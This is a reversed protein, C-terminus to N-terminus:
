VGDLLTYHAHEPVGNQGHINHVSFHHITGRSKTHQLFKNSTYERGKDSQFTKISANFQTKLWAEYNRYDDLVESKHCMLNVAIWCKADDVFIVYYEAHRVTQTTAPGWVDSYVLESLKTARERTRSIPILKRKVKELLCPKCPTAPEDRLKVGTILRENVM